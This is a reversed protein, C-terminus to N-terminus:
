CLAGQQLLMGMGLVGASAVSADYEAMAQLAQVTLENLEDPMEDPRHRLMFDALPHGPQGMQKDLQEGYMRYINEWSM